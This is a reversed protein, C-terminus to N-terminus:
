SASVMSVSPLSTLLLRPEVSAGFAWTGRVFGCTITLPQGVLMVVDSSHLAVGTGTGVDVGNTVMVEEDGQVLSCTAQKPLNPTGRLAPVLEATLTALFRGAPLNPTTLTHESDFPGRSQLTVLTALPEIGRCQPRGTADVGVIAQGTPCATAIRRQLHTSDLSDLRDANLHTVRGTGNVALPAAASTSSRLSLVPASGGQIVTTAASTNIRGLVLSSGTAAYALGDLTLTSVVVAAVAVVTTVFTRHVPAGSSAASGILALRRV